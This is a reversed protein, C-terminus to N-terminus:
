GVFGITNAMYYVTVEIRIKHVCFTNYSYQRIPMAAPWGGGTVVRVGWKLVFVILLIRNKPQESANHHQTHAGTYLQRAWRVNNNPILGRSLTSM